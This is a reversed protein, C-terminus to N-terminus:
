QKNHTKTSSSVYICLESNKQKLRVARNTKKKHKKDGFLRTFVPTYENVFFASQTKKKPQHCSRKPFKNPHATNKNVFLTLSRFKTTHATNKHIFLCLDHLDRHCSISVNAIQATNKHEKDQKINSKNRQKSKKIKKKPKCNIEKRTKNNIKDKTQCNAQKM